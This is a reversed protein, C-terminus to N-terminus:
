CLPLIEIQQSVLIRDLRIWYRWDPFVRRRERDRLTHLWLHRSRLANLFEPSFGALFLRSWLPIQKVAQLLSHLEATQGRGNRLGGCQVRRSRHCDWTISTAWGNGVSPDFVLSLRLVATSRRDEPVRLRTHGLLGTRQRTQDSAFGRGGDREEEEKRILGRLATYRVRAARWATLLEEVKPVESCGAEVAAERLHRIVESIDGEMEVAGWQAPLARLITQLRFVGDGANMEKAIRDRVKQVSEEAVRYRVRGEDLRVEMGLWATDTRPSLESVDSEPTGKLEMGNPRLTEVIAAYANRAEEMTRCVCAIDDAWRIWLSNPFRDRLRADLTEDLLVNLLLGSLPSGTQIGQGRSRGGVVSRVLRAVPQGLRKRITAILPGLPVHDFARRIDSLVVFQDGREVREALTALAENRSRGPRFAFCEKGLNPDVIPELIQVIARHAIRDLCNQIEIQRTSGGSGKPISTTRTRGAQLQGERIRGALAKLRKNLKRRRHIVTNHIREGDPGPAREGKRLTCRLAQFLNRSDAIRELLDSQLIKKDADTMRHFRSCEEYHRALYKSANGVHARVPCVGGDSSQPQSPVRFGLEFQNSM